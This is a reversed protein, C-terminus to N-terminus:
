GGRVAGDMVQLAADWAEGQNGNEAMLEMLGYALKRHEPSLDRLKRLMYLYGSKEMRLTSILAYLQLGAGSHPNEQIIDVVQQLLNEQM